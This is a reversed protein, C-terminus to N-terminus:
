FAKNTMQKILVTRGKEFFLWPSISFNGSPFLLFQLFYPQFLIEFKCGSECNTVLLMVAARKLVKLFILCFKEYGEAPSSDEKNKIFPVTHPM